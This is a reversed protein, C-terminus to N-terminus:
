AIPFTAIETEVKGKGRVDGNPISRPFFNQVIARGDLDHGLVNSSQIAQTFM